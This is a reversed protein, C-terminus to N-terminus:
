GAPLTFYTVTGRGAESEAWIRGGMREVNTRALQMSLRSGYTEIAHKGEIFGAFMDQLESEPLAPGSSSVGIRMENGRMQSEIRVRGGAATIVIMRELVQRLIGMIAERNGNIPPLGTVTKYDLTLQRERALPTVEDLADAVLRPIAVQEKPAVPPPVYGGYMMLLSDVLAIMQEYNLHLESLSRSVSPHLANANNSLIAQWGMEASALPARINDQLMTVIEQRLLQNESRLSKDRLVMIYGQINGDDGSLPQLHALVEIKKKGDKSHLVGEPYFQEILANPNGGHQAFAQGISDMHSPEGPKRVIDFCLRGAIEGESTGLWNLVIPNGHLINGFQDLLFYGETSAQLVADLQQQVLIAQRNAQNIQRGLEAIQKAQTTIQNNLVDVQQNSQEAIQNREEVERIQKTLQTKLNQTTSRMSLVATDILEGLDYWEGTLGELPPIVQKNNAIARTRKLLFRMPENVSAAIRTALFVGILIGLMGVLGGLIATELAKNLLSPVPKALLIISDMSARAGTQQNVNVNPLDLWWGDSREFGPAPVLLQDLLAIGTIAAFKTEPYGKPLGGKNLEALFRYCRQQPFDQSWAVVQSQRASYVALQVGQARPNEIGIRTATASLFEQNIPQNVVVFGKPLVKVSSFSIIGTKNNSLTGRYPHKNNVCDSLIECDQKLPYGSQQPTDTSFVVAGKEDIFWISGAFIARESYERALNGLGNRDKAELLGRTRTDNALKGAILDVYEITNKGTLKVKILAGDNNDCLAQAAEGRTNRFDIFVSYGVHGIVVSTVVIVLAFILRSSLNM